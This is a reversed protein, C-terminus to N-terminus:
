WWRDAASEGQGAKVGSADSVTGTNTGKIVINVGPLPQGDDSSVIKGSVKLQQARASAAVILISVFCIWIKKLTM